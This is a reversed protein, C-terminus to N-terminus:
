DQRRLCFEKAYLPGTMGARKKVQMREGSGGEFHLAAAQLKMKTQTYELPTVEGLVEFM